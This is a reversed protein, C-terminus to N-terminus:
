KGGCSSSCNQAIPTGPGPSRNSMLERVAQMDIGFVVGVIASGGPDSEQNNQQWGRKASTYMSAHAAVNAFCREFPM